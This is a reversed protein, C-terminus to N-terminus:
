KFLSAWNTIIKKPQHDEESSQLQKQEQQQQRPQQMSKQIQPRKDKKQLKLMKNKFKEFDKALDPHTYEPNYGHINVEELNDCVQISRFSREIEEESQPFGDCVECSGFYGRTYIYRNKYSFIVFLSGQWDEECWYFIRKVPERFLSKFYSRSGYIKEISKVNMFFKKIELLFPDTIEPFLSKKPTPPPPPPPKFSDDNLNEKLIEAFSKKFM